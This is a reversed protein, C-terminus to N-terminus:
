LKGCSELTQASNYAQKELSFVLLSVFLFLITSVGKEWCHYGLFTLCSNCTCPCYIWCSGARILGEAKRWLWSGGIRWQKSQRLVFVELWNPWSPTSCVRLRWSGCRSYQAEVLSVEGHHQGLPLSSLLSFANCLSSVDYDVEFKPALPDWVKLHSGLYTEM